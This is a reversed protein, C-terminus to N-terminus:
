FPEDIAAAAADDADVVVEVDDSRQAAIPEGHEFAVGGVMLEPVPEDDAAGGVGHRQVHRQVVRVSEGELLQADGSEGAGDGRHDLAGILGVVESPDSHVRHDDDVAAGSRGHGIGRDLAMVPSRALVPPPWPVGVATVLVSRGATPRPTPFIVTAGASIPKATPATCGSSDVATSRFLTTYPFLPPQPPC